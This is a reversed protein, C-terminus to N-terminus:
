YTLLAFLILAISGLGLTIGAAGFLTGTRRARASPAPVSLADLAGERELRDFQAAREHRLEQESVAGTFIVLDMPFKGPRLHGNFFHVTFIFGIALCAEAGHVLLAVNFMWGPLLRAAAVPFWLVLGAAGMLATGYLVALYDLKEWYTFQEFRPAPGLGLFWKFQRYLDVLDRPQPVMSTPGWLMGKERRVVIRWALRGVHWALGALLTAGLLRHVIGTAHFGGFIAAIAHAWAAHSFLVPLGTVTLGIFTLMVLRHLIRHELDFRQVHRTADAGRIVAALPQSAVPPHLLGADARPLDSM